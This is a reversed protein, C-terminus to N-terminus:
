VWGMEFYLCMREGFQSVLSNHSPDFFDHVAVETKGEFVRLGRGISQLIPIYSKWGGGLIIADLSPINIGEKWVTTTIVANGKTSEVKKKIHERIIPDMEGNVFEVRIDRREMLKQIYDGQEIFQVFILVNERKRLHNEVIEAITNNLAFGKTIAMDVVERYSRLDNIKQNYPLKHLKIKPAVLLEKQQAEDMSLEYICEGLLAEMTLLAEMEKPITATFGIRIPAYLKSLVKGYGSKLSNCHHAEDVIVVDFVKAYDDPDLKQFSQITSIVLTGDSDEKGDLDIEQHLSRWDIASKGMIIQPKLGTLRNMENATQTVLDITNAMILINFKRYCSVMGAMTVTKGTGTPAVIIGRNKELIADIASLQDKRLTMDDRGRGTLRKNDAL